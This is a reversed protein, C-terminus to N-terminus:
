QLVSHQTGTCYDLIHVYTPIFHSLSSHNMM